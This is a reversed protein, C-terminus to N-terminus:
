ENKNKSKKVASTIVFALVLLLVVSAVIAVVAFGMEQSLKQNSESESSPTVPKRDSPPTKEYVVSDFERNDKWEAIACYKGPSVPNSQTEGNCVVIDGVCDSNFYLDYTQNGINDSFIVAYTRGKKLGGELKTSSKLKDLDYYWVDDKYNECKESKAQWIFFEGGGAEWIHCYIAQSNGWSNKGTTPVKFYIVNKNKLPKTKEEKASAFTTLSFISSFVLLAMLLSGIIKKMKVEINCFMM